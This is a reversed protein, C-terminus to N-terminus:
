ETEGPLNEVISIDVVRRGADEHYAIEKAIHSRIAYESRASFSQLSFPGIMYYMPADSDNFNENDEDGSIAVGVPIMVRASWSYFRNSKLASTLYDTKNRGSWVDATVKLTQSMGSKSKYLVPLPQVPLTPMRLRPSKVFSATKPEWAKDKIFRRWRRDEATVEKKIKAETRDSLRYGKQNKFRRLTRTSIGLQEALEKQTVYNKSGIKGGIITRLKDALSIRTAM